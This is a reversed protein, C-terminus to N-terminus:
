LQDSHTLPKTICLQGKCQTRGIKSRRSTRPRSLKRKEQDFTSLTNNVDITMHLYYTGTISKNILATHFYFTNLSQPINSPKNEMHLLDLLMMRYFVCTEALDVMALTEAGITSKVVRRVRKSHWALPM